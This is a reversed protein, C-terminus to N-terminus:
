DGQAYLPHYCNTLTFTQQTATRKPPTGFQQMYFGGNKVFRQVLSFFGRLHTGTKTLNSFASCFSKYRPRNLNQPEYYYYYHHYYCYHDIVNVITRVETM